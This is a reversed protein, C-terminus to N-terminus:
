DSGTGEEALREGNWHLSTRDVPCRAGVLEGPLSREVVIGGEHLDVRSIGDAVTFVRETRDEWLRYVYGALAGHCAVSAGCEQVNILAVPIGAGSIETYRLYVPYWGEGYEETCPHAVADKVRDGVGPDERLLEVADVTRATTGGNNGGSGSVEDSPAPAPGSIRVGTDVMGCGGALFLAGAAACLAAAARRM